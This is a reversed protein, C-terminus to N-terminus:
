LLTISEKDLSIGTIDGEAVPRQEITYGENRLQEIVESTEVKTSLTSSATEMLKDSYIMQSREEIKGLETQIKADSAQKFISNDGLM